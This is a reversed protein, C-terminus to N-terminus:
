GQEDRTFKNDLFGVHGFSFIGVVDKASGDLVHVNVGMCLASAAKLPQARQAPKQSHASPDIGAHLCQYM